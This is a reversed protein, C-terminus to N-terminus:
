FLFSFVSSQPCAKQFHPHGLLCVIIWPEGSFCFRYSAHIYPFLSRLLSHARRTISAPAHSDAAHVPLRSVYSTCTCSFGLSLRSLFERQFLFALRENSESRWCDSAACRCQPPCDIKSVARQNSTLKMWFHGAPRYVFNVMVCVLNISLVGAFYPVDASFFIILFLELHSIEPSFVVVVVMM